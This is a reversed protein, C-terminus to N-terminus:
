LPERSGRGWLRPDVRASYRGAPSGTRLVLELYSDDDWHLPGEYEFEADGEIPQPDIVRFSKRYQSTDQGKPPLGVLAKETPRFVQRWKKHRIGVINLGVDATKFDIDTWIEWRVHARLKVKEPDSGDWRFSAPSATLRIASDRKTRMVREERYVFYGAELAGLIIIAMTVSVTVSAGLGLPAAVLFFIVGGLIGIILSLRQLCRGLYEPLQGLYSM